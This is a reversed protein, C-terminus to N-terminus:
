AFSDELDAEIGSDEMTSFNMFHASRHSEHYFEKPVDLTLSYNMGNNFQAGMVSIAFVCNSNHAQRKGKPRKKKWKV